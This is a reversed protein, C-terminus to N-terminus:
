SDELAMDIRWGWGLTRVMCREPSKGGAGNGGYGARGRAAEKKGRVAAGAAYPLERGLPQILAAAALRCWLWLM